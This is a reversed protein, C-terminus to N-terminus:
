RVAGPNTLWAVTECHHTHPFMDFVTLEALEFGGETLTKLDRALTVPDCAVIVLHPPKLEIVPLLVDKAGARPPDLIVLDFRAGDRVSKEVLVAADGARFEVHKLSADAAARRAAAVAAAHTEVGVGRLGAHALPLTFNGSGCYVDLFTRAGRTRAGGVVHAILAENVAWNAQTFGGPPVRLTVDGLTWHTDDDAVSPEGRLTVDYTERLEDLFARAPEPLDGDFEDRPWFHLAVRRTAGGNVAAPVAGEIALFTRLAHGHRGGATRVSALAEDLGPACVLCGPIEELRHSQPAFFGVKGKPNVHWRVRARYRTADGATVLAPEAELEIKATRRLAETVIGVKARRQGETSLQMWDCGGCKAYVPCLPAVRDPGPTVVDYEHIRFLDRQRDARVIRLEDGPTANDVFAIRRDELRVLGAGGPVLKEVTVVLGTLEDAPKPVSRRDGGNHRRPKAPRAGGGSSPGGRRRRRGGQSGGARSGGSRESSM